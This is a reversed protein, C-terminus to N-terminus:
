RRVVDCPNRIQSGKADLWKFELKGEYVKMLYPIEQEYKTVYKNLFRDEKLDLMKILEEEKALEKCKLIEWVRSRPIVRKKMSYMLLKPRQSILSPEWQMKKGFFDMGSRIKKESCMMYMPVRRFADFVNEESWGLSKLLKVKAAWTSKSLSCMAHIAWMFLLSGREFGFAAVRETIERLSDLKQMLTRPQTMVMKAIRSNPVGLERLFNINPRMTKNLDSSFLWRSRKLAKVVNENTELLSRLFSVSPILQFKLSQYLMHPNSAILEALEPDSLGLSQFFQIKPQLTSEVNALLFRPRFAILNAIHTNNFGHNKLFQLVSDPKQTSKLHVKQSASLAAQPSLGCTNILYSLTLSSPQETTCNSIQSSISKPFQIQLFRLFLPSQTPTQLVKRCLISLM